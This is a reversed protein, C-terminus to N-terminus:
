RRGRKGNRPVRSKQADEDFGSLRSLASMVAVYDGAPAGDLWQGVEDVTMQPDVLACAIMADDDATGDKKTYLKIEARTLGRVRVAGLNGIPVEETDHQDQQQGRALLLAKDM